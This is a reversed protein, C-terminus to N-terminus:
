TLLSVFMLDLFFKGVEFVLSHIEDRLLFLPRTDVQALKGTLTWSVTSQFLGMSGGGGGGYM